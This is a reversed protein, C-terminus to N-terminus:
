SGATPSGSPPMAGPVAKSSMGASQTQGTQPAALSSKLGTSSQFGSAGNRSQLVPKVASCFPPTEYPRRGKAAVQCTKNQPLGKRSRWAGPLNQPHCLGHRCRLPQVPPQCGKGRGTGGFNKLPHKLRAQLKFAWTRQRGKKQCLASIQSHFRFRDAITWRQRLCAAPNTCNRVGFRCHGPKQLM